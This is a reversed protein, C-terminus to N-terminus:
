MKKTAPTPAVVGNSADAQYVIFSKGNLSVISQPNKEFDHASKPTATPQHHKKTHASLTQQNAKASKFTCNQVLRYPIDSIFLLSQLCIRLSVIFDVFLLFRLTKMNVQISENKEPAKVECTFSTGGETENLPKKACEHHYLCLCVKCQLSPVKGIAPPCNITCRADNRPLIWLTDFPTHPLILMMLRWCICCCLHWRPM